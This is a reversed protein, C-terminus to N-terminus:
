NNKCENYGFIDAGYNLISGVAILYNANIWQKKNSNTIVVNFYDHFAFM